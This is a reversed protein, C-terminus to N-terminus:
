YDFFMQMGVSVATSASGPFTAPMVASFDCYATQNSQEYFTISNTTLDPSAIALWYLGPCLTLPAASLNAVPVISGGGTTLTTLPSQYVLTSPYNSGNDAYIGAYMQQNSLTPAGFTLETVASPNTLGFPGVVYTGFDNVATSNSADGTASFNGGAVVCGTPTSTVTPTSTITATATRTATQTFTGTRTSTPTFSLNAALTSTPTATVLPTHTFTASPLATYTKTPTFVAVVTGPTDTITPSGAVPVFPSGTGYTPGGTCANMVLAVGALVLILFTFAQYKL